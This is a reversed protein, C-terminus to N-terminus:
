VADTDYEVDAGGLRDTGGTCLYQKGTGGEEADSEGDDPQTLREGENMAESHGQKGTADGEEQDIAMPVVVRVFRHGVLMRMTMIIFVVRVHMGTKRWGCSVGMKVLVFWGAMPVRMPWIQVVTVFMVRSRHAVLPLPHSVSKTQRQEDTEDDTVCPDADAGQNAGGDNQAADIVDGGDARTDGDAVSEAQGALM